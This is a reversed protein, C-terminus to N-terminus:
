CTEGDDVVSVVVGSGTFGQIWAGEVNLDLGVPGSTQGVNQQLFLIYWNLCVCMVSFTIIYWLCLWHIALQNAYKYNM